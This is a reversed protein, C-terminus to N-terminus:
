ISKQYLPQYTLWEEEEMISAHQQMTVKRKKVAASHMIDRM